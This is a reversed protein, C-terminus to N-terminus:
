HPHHALREALIERLRELARGRHSIRHKERPEMQAFTQGYEPILFVPDYGFGREGMPQFTITGECAGEATEEGGDPWALVLVCRFVARRRDFPVGSLAELLKRIHDAGSADEGTYRASRVGPEGGLAEVELGSDDALAPRGTLAAVARAKKAANEAYTAGDEKVEVALRLDAPTLVKIPLDALVERIERVKHPNNTALVLEM